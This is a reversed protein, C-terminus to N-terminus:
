PETEEINASVFTVSLYAFEEGVFHVSDRERERERERERGVGGGVCVDRGGERGGV